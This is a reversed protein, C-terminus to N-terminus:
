RDWKRERMEEYAEDPDRGHIPCWKDLIRGDPPDIDTSHVIPPRCTCEVLMGRCEDCAFTEIGYIFTWSLKRNKGCCDCDSM